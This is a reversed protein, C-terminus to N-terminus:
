FNLSFSFCSSSGLAENLAKGHLTSETIQSEIKTSQNKDLEREAAQLDLCNLEKLLNTLNESDSMEDKRIMETRYRIGAKGSYSTHLTSTLCLDLPLDIVEKTATLSMEGFDIESKQSALPPKESRSFRLKDVQSLLDRLDEFKGEEALMEHIQSLRPLYKPDLLNAKQLVQVAARVDETCALFSNENDSEFESKWGGFSKEISIECPNGTTMLQNGELEAMCKEFEVSDNSRNKGHLSESSGKNENAFVSSFHGDAIFNLKKMLGPCTEKNRVLIKQLDELNGQWAKQYNKMKRVVRKEHKKWSKEHSFVLVKSIKLKKESNTRTKAGRKSSTSSSPESSSKIRQELEKFSSLLSSTKFFIQSFLNIHDSENLDPLLSQLDEIVSLSSEQLLLSAPSASVTLLSKRSSM